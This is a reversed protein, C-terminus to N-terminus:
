LPMAPADSMLSDLMPCSSTGDDCSTSLSQLAARLRELNDIKASIAVLQDEAMTKVENCSRGQQDNLSLLTQIISMSFGLDRCRKMFRLRAIEDATYLRRGGASRDPKPVFGEREYYRITEINVGSKQSAKGIAFM